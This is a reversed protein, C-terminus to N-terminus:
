RGFTGLLAQVRRFCRLASKPLIARGLVTEPMLRQAPTAARLSSESDLRASTSAAARAGLPLFMRM